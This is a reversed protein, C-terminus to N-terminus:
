KPTIVAKFLKIKGAQLLQQLEEHTLVKGEPLRETISVIIAEAPEKAVFMARNTEVNIGLLQSLLQATAAHGIFSEVPAESVLKKAEEVSIPNTVIGGGNPIMSVSIANLLVIKKRPNTQSQMKEGLLNM